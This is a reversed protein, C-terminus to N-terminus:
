QSLDENIPTFPEGRSRALVRGDAKAFDIPLRDFTAILQLGAWQNIILENATAERAATATAIASLAVLRIM